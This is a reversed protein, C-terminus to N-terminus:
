ATQENLIKEILAKLGPIDTEITDVIRRPDIGIYDHAIINRMTYSLAIPLKERISPEDIKNMVEGIQLCCMMVAHFGEFDDIAKAIGAHRAGIKDLDGILKLLFELRAINSKHSM